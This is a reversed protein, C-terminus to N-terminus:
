YTVTTPRAGRATDGDEDAVSPWTSPHTKTAREDVLSLIVVVARSRNRSFAVPIVEVTTVPTQSTARNV